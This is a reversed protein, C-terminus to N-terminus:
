FLVAKRNLNGKAYANVQHNITLFADLLPIISSALFGVWVTFIIKTVNLLGSIYCILFSLPILLSLIIVTYYIFVELAKWYSKESKKNEVIQKLTSSLSRMKLSYVWHKLGISVLVCSLAIFTNIKNPKPKPDRIKYDATEDWFFYCTVLLSSTKALEIISFTTIM